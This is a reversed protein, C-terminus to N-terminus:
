GAVEQNTLNDEVLLIRASSRRAAKLSHRTILARKETRKAGALVVALCDFLDAQRVPKVLYAAFGMKKFRAADGRQGLSTMMVLQTSQLTDDALIAAGLAAGDMGPMMMDLVALQFPNGASVADRLCALAAPG